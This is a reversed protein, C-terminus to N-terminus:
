RMRLPWPLASCQVHGKSMKLVDEVSGVSFVVEYGGLMMLYQGITDRLAPNDEVIGIHLRVDSM